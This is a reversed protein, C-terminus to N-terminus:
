IFNSTDYYNWKINLEVKIIVRKSLHEMTKTMESALILHFNESKHIHCQGKCECVLTLLLGRFAGGVETEEKIEANNVINRLSCLIFYALSFKLERVIGKTTYM